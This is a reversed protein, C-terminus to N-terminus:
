IFAKFLVGLIHIKCLIKFIKLHKIHIFLTSQLSFIVYTPGHFLYCNLYMSFIHLSLTTSFKKYKFQFIKRSETILSNAYLDSVLSIFKTKLNILLTLKCWKGEANHTSVEKRKEAVFMCWEYTCTCVHMCVCASLLVCFFSRLGDIVCSYCPM